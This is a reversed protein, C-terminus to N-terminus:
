TSCRSQWVGELPAFPPFLDLPRRQRMPLMGAPRQARAIRHPDDLARPRLIGTAGSRRADKALMRVGPAQNACLHPPWTVLLSLRDRRGMAM